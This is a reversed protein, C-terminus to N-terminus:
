LGKLTFVLSIISASMMNSLTGAAIVKVAQSSIEKKRNPVLSGLGGMLIAVSAINAFGCLAFTVTALTRESLQEQVDVMGVFAVFENLM